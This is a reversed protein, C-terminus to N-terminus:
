PDNKEVGFYADLAQRAQLTLEVFHRRGDNPDSVKVLLRAQCLKNFIRLATSPTATSSHCLTNIAIKAGEVDQIFAEVLMEWAPEGFLEPSGILARRFKRRERVARANALAALGRDYPSGAKPGMSDKLVHSSDAPGHPQFTVFSSVRMARTATVVIHDVIDIDLSRGIESLTQTVVIDSESPNPNGSPHNHVLILGAADLEMARRFITRPYLALQRLSGLQLQEDAILHGASDLFIVRLVEDPLAGMSTMLYQLLKPCDPNIPLSAFEERMGELILLRAGLLIRALAAHGRLVRELSQPSQAFIRGLSRFEDFLANTLRDGDVPEIIEIFDALISRQRQTAPAASTALNRPGSAAPSALILCGADDFVRDSAHESGVGPQFAGPTSTDSPRCGGDALVQAGCYGALDDIGGCLSRDCSSRHRGNCLPATHLPSSGSGDLGHSDPYRGYGTGANGRELHRLRDGDVPIDSVPCHTANRKWIM